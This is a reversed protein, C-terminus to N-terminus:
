GLFGTLAFPQERSPARRVLILNFIQSVKIWTSNLGKRYTIALEPCCCQRIVSDSNSPFGTLIRLSDGGDSKFAGLRM